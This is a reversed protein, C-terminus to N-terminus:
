IPLTIKILLIKLVLMKFSRRDTSINELILLCCAPSDMYSFAKVTIDKIEANKFYYFIKHSSSTLNM